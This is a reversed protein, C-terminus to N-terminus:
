GYFLIKKECCKLILMLMFWIEAYVFLTPSAIQPDDVIRLENRMALGMNLYTMVPPRGENKEHGPLDLLSVLLYELV